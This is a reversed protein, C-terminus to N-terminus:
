TMTALMEPTVRNLPPQGKSFRVVEEVAIAGIERRMELGGAAIHPTLIVNPLRRLEHESPLPEVPDTVDLAATIRGSRLEALLAEMDILGGRAVNILFAGDTLLSLRRSDFLGHTEPTLAACLVVVSCSRVLEDLQVSTAGYAVVTGSEAYPDSVLIEVGFPQLLKALARGIRGFGVIGIRRGFLTEGESVYENTRVVGDRMEAAYDPIRRVLTLTLALAMEAVGRAMPDAANTITAFEFIEEAVRSKVEGGCHAILKVRPPRGLMEATLFPSHWTTMLVEAGAIESRLEPSDARLASRTWSTVESLKALSADTFFHQFLVDSALLLVKPRTLNM